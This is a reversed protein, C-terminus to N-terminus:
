VARRRSFTILNSPLGLLGVEELKLLLQLNGTPDITFKYKYRSSGEGTYKIKLIKPCPGRGEDLYDEKLVAAYATDLKDVALLYTRGVVLNIM